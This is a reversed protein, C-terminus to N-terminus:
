EQGEGLRNGHNLDDNAKEWDITVGLNAERIITIKLKVIKNKSSTWDETKELFLKKKKTLYKELSEGEYKGRMWNSDPILNRINM